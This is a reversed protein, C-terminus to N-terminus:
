SASKVLEFNSPDSSMAFHKVDPQLARALVLLEKFHAEDTRCGAILEVLARKPFGYDDFDTTTGRPAIWVFRWENEYQWDMHKILAFEREFDMSFPLGFVLSRILDEVNFLRPPDNMYMVRELPRRLGNEMARTDFGLVVGRHQDAYHSWMLRSRDSASLCQIRMRRRIDLLRQSLLEPMERTSADRALHAIAEDRADAPLAAIRQRELTMVRRFEPDAEPPWSAPDRVAQEILTREYERAEPTFLPWHVDWQSDSPDNYRLPSQFRLKGSSIIIRAIDLSTYKYLVRPPPITRSRRHEEFRLGDDPPSQERRVDHKRKPLPMSPTVGSGAMAILRSVRPNM